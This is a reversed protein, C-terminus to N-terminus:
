ILSSLEESKTLLELEAVVATILLSGFGIILDESVETLPVDLIGADLFLRTLSRGLWEGEELMDVLEGEIEKNM